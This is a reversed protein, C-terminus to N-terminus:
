ICASVTPLRSVPHLVTFVAKVNMVHIVSLNLLLELIPQSSLIGSFPIGLLVFDGIAYVELIKYWAAPSNHVGATLYYNIKQERDGHVPFQYLCILYRLTLQVLKSVVVRM